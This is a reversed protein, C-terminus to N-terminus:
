QETGNTWTRMRPTWGHPTPPIDRNFAYRLVPKRIAVIFALLVITIAAGTLARM